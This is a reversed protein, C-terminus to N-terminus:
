CYPGENTIRRNIIKNQYMELRRLAFDFEVNFLDMVDYVNVGKLNTLMFTPVCFHHAFYDAKSECYDVFSERLVDRDTQDQFYHSMEHGFVQWRQQGNLSENIFIKYKGKHETMESSFPWYHIRLNLQGAVNNISLRTYDNINISNYIVRILYETNNM